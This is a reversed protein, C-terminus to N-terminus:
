IVLLWSIRLLCMSSVLMWLTTKPNLLNLFSITCDMKWPNSLASGKINEITGIDGTTISQDAQYSIGDVGVYESGGVNIAWVVTNDKESHDSQKDGQHVSSLHAEEPQYREDDSILEQGVLLVPILILVLVLLSKKNNQKNNM